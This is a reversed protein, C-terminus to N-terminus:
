GSASSGCVDIWSCVGGALEIDDTSDIVTEVGHYSDANIM